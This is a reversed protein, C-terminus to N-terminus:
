KLKIKKIYLNNYINKLVLQARGRFYTELPPMGQTQCRVM